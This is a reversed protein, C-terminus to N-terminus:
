AVGTIRPIDGPKLKQHVYFKFFTDPSSHGMQTIGGRILDPRQTAIYTGFSHRLMHPTIRYGLLRESQARLIAAVDQRRYPRETRTELLFIKSRFVHRIELYIDSPILVEKFNGGKQRVRIVCGEDTNRCDSLRVSCAESVRLSSLFLFETWYRAVIGCRSVFSSLDKLSVARPASRSRRPVRYSSFFTKLVGQLGSDFILEM